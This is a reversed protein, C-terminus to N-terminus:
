RGNLSMMMETFAGQAQGSGADCQPQRHQAQRLPTGLTASPYRLTSDVEHPRMSISRVM